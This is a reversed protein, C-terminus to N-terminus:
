IIQLLMLYTNKTVLILANIPTNNQHMLLHGLIIDLTTIHLNFNMTRAVHNKIEGWFSAVTPCEIFMHILTEPNVSCKRCLSTPTLGLKNLHYGTGLLRYIIRLQFWILTNDNVTYFGIKFINRWTQNDIQVNLDSSWKGKMPHTNKKDRNVYNHFDRTGRNSLYLIKIHNPFNPRTLNSKGYNNEKLFQKCTSKVSLYRLFNRDTIKYIRELEDLTMICGNDDLIDSITFIGRNYWDPIFLHEKSLM